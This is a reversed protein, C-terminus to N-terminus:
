CLAGQVWVFLRVATPFEEGFIRLHLDVIDFLMIDAHIFSWTIQLPPLITESSFVPLPQRERAEISAATYGPHAQRWCPGPGPALLAMCKRAPSRLGCSVCGRHEARRGCHLCRGWCQAETPQLPLHFTRRRQPWAGLWRRLPGGLLGSQGGAGASHLPLRVLPPQDPCTLTPSPLTVMLLLLLPAPALLAHALLPWLPPLWPTEGAPGQLDAGPVASPVM